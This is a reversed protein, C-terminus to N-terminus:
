ALCAYDLDPQALKALWRAVDPWVHNRAHEGTLMKRETGTNSYGLFAKHNAGWAQYMQRPTIGSSAEIEEGNLMLLPVNLRAVQKLFALQRTQGALRSVPRFPNHEGHLVGYAEPEIDKESGEPRIFGRKRERWNLFRSLMPARWDGKPDDMGFAVLGAVDTTRMRGMALSTSLAAASLGYGCWIAAGEHRTLLYDQIAPLDYNIYDLLSNEQYRQNEPSLGHGRMEPMWVDYGQEVLYPAFGEGDQNFWISRNSFQGHILVVPVGSQGPKSLHTIALQVTGDASNGPTILFVDEVLGNALIDASLLQEKM